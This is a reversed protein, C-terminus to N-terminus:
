LKGFPIDANSCWENGSLDEKPLKSKRFLWFDIRGNRYYWYGYENEGIGNFYSDLYVTLSIGGAMNMQQWEPIIGYLTDTETISGAMKM